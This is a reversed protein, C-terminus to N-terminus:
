TCQEQLYTQIMATSLLIRRCDPALTDFAKGKVHVRALAIWPSDPCAPCATVRSGNVGDCLKDEVQYNGGHSDPLNGLCTVEFGERIRSYECVTDDCGCGVPPVRVPHSLCEDYKIAIYFDQAPDVARAGGLARATVPRVRARSVSVSISRFRRRCM